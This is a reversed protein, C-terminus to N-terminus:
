AVRAGDAQGRPGVPVEWARWPRQGMVPLGVTDQPLTGLVRGVFRALDNGTEILARGRKASEQVAKAIETAPEIEDSM